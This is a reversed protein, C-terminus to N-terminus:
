SLMVVGGDALLAPLAQDIVVHAAQPQTLAVSLATNIAYLRTTRETTWIFDDQGQALGGTGRTEHGAVANVSDRFEALAARVREM